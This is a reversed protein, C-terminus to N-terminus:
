CRVKVAADYLCCHRSQPPPTRPLTVPFTTDASPRPDEVEVRPTRQFVRLHVNWVAYISIIGLNIATYISIIGLNIATYISFESYHAHM